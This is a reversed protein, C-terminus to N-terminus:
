TRHELGDCDCSANAIASPSCLWFPAAVSVIASLTGASNRSALPISSQSMLILADSQFYCKKKENFKNMTAPRQQTRTPHFSPVNLQDNPRRMWLTADLVLRIHMAIACAQMVLGAFPSSSLNSGMWLSHRRYFPQCPYHCEPTM